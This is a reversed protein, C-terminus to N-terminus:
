SCSCTSSGATEREDDNEVGYFLEDFLLRSDNARSRTAKDAGAGAGAGAGAARGESAGVLNSELQFVGFGNKSSAQWM